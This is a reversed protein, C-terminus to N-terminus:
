RCRDQKTGLGMKFERLKVLRELNHLGMSITEKEM